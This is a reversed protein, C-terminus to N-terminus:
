PFDLCNVLCFILLALVEVALPPHNAKHGTGKSHPDSVTWKIEHGENLNM